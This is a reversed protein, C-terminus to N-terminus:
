IRSQNSMKVSNSENFKDLENLLKQGAKSRGTFEDVHKVNIKYEPLRGIAYESEQIDYILFKYSAHTIERLYINYLSEPLLRKYGSSDPMWFFVFYSVCEKLRPSITKSAFLTHSIFIVSANYKRSFTTFNLFALSLQYTFNDFILLKPQKSKMSKTLFDITEQGIDATKIIYINKNSKLKELIEPEIDFNKNVIYVIKTTRQNPMNDVLENIFYTKGERSKGVVYTFFPTTFTINPVQQAM